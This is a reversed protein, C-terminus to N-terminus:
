QLAESKVFALAEEREISQISSVKNKFVIGYFKDGTQIMEPRFTTCIFQGNDSMEHLMTAVATRYQADLAADVEDLLYFPAPDCRQIAFILALACLSKQGGSLQQIRQEGEKNNFSVSIAVGVYNEVPSKYQAEGKNYEDHDRDEAHDIRRQMILRGKGIPVLKEFVESFSKSVQKFNREIAEDKRQDLVSILNEISAQSEDLEKRRALLADRQKIFSNYQEFAKKNVHSFKKLAENVKHLRKVITNSETTSFKEFAEEPLVGLDRINKNCEEKNQLLLARKAMNRELTKQYKEITRAEDNQKNQLLAKEESKEHLETSLQDISLEIDNLKKTITDITDQVHSINQKTEDMNVDVDDNIFSQTKLQDLRLYLNEHLENELKIKQQELQTRKVNHNVYTNKISDITKNLNELTDEESQTLTKKFEIKMEDQLSSLQSNLSNISFDVDNLLSQKKLLTQELIGEEKQTASLKIRLPNYNGEIQQKKAELTQIKSLQQTVKQDMEELIKKIQVISSNNEEYAQQFKKVSKVAELRSKRIDHFGGTFAGKKDSRDGSLTIATINHSRSYQAAIDLTPCIITKGFVQEFAKQYKTDYTIKKLMPIADPADPYNGQRPSLRNLPMCTIRGGKEKNLIDIIKSATDENDVVVHFLSNGATVEVATKYRDDVEFLEYLPGYYGTLDLREAIKKANTLGYNIDRSITNILNKQAHNLEEKIHEITLGLKAEQRWLEKREDMLQDRVIKASSHEISINNLMQSRNEIEERISKTSKSIDNIKKKLTELEEELEIKTQNRKRISEKLDSIEQQLWIDRENKNKFQSYRGRKSYLLNQQNQANELKNKIQMENNKAEQFELLVSQLHTEKEKIENELSELKKEYIDKSSELEEDSEKFNRAIFELQAKEKIKSHKDEEAQSKEINLLHLQQKIITINKNIEQIQHEREIFTDCKDENLNINKIREEDINILAKNIEEQERSYITYELCRRERNKKQFEKLENKEQELENLREDIYKLLEDIKTKKVMTEEIIKLSEARRQEYVQTGAIEKLLALRGSDKANTLATIRGQPVIYYPNSRSFGASELLNVVDSKNVNKKDLSYEDKKLGITRRLVVEEKGTPFRNDTNDFVIEVYASMVTPGAGEHLLAQREERGM